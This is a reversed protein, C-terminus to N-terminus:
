HRRTVRVKRDPSGEVARRAQIMTVRSPSSIRYVKSVIVYDELTEGPKLDYVPSGGAM